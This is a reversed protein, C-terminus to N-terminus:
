RRWDDIVGDLLKGAIEEWWPMGIETAATRAVGLEHRARGAEGPGVQCLLAEGLAVRAMLSWVRLGLEDYRRVAEDLLSIAEDWGGDAAKALGDLHVPSGQFTELSGFYEDRPKVFRGALRQVRPGDGLLWAAVVATPGSLTEVVPADAPMSREEFIDLWTAARHSDGRLISSMAREATPETIGPADLERDAGDPDGRLWNLWYREGRLMYDGAAGLAEARPALDDILREADTLRGQALAVTTDFALLGYGRADVPIGLGADVADELVQRAAEVRGLGVLGSAEHYAGDNVMRLEGHREGIARLERGCAALPAASRDWGRINWALAELARGLVEDIGLDRAIAVSEEALGAGTRPDDFMSIGRAVHALLQARIETREEPMANLAERMLDLATLDEPDLFRGYYGEYAIGATGLLEVDGARRAQEAAALAHRHAADHDGTFHEAFALARLLQGRTAPDDRGELDFAELARARLRVADAHAGRGYAEEAARAAYEIARDVAGASAAELFHHALVDPGTGGRAELVEGIRLHLRVRRHTSVEDLLTSRVLAHGFALVGARPGDQVVGLRLADDFAVAVEEEAIGSAETVVGTDFELGVLAAVRLADNAADPLQSLRQGVVDRVGEPIGAEEIPVSAVWRGGEQVLVRTEYLHRLVEGVFFPNGETEVTLMRAFALGDTELDHGGAAALFARMAEEDLGRLAIREVRAARRLDGVIGALPHARDVDTDRYTAIMQLRLEPTAQRALHRLLLLSSRDAWHVDELVLLVGVASAMRSLLTRVADFALLQETEPDVRRRPGLDDVRDVLHPVVGTLDAGIGAVHARLDDDDLQALLHGLAEAWPGYASTVQEDCRGALVVAGRDHVERAAESVLRTKGVGPEGTVLVVTAGDAEAGSEWLSVLREYERDRGAFPFQVRSGRLLSPFPVLEGSPAACVVEYAIVPEALGKLELEGVRRVEHESRGRALVRVVDSCLVQGGEAADCLRSGEVVPTGRVDGGEFAVDGASLGIRLGLRRDDAVVRNHREVSRHAAVAADLADTAGSFVAFLGDGTSKVVSGGHAEVADAVLRDHERQLADAAVDGLRTRMETSGVLDTFLVVAIGSGTGGSLSV